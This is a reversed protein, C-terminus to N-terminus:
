KKRDNAQDQSNYKELSDLSALVFFAMKESLM